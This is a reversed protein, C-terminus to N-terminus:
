AGRRGSAWGPPPKLQATAAAIAAMAAPESALAMPLCALPFVVSLLLYTNVLNSTGGRAGFVLGGVGSGLSWLALLIGALEPSGEEAAFAPVAVEVSGLCFGLPVTALVIARLGPDALIGLAGRHPSDFPRPERMRQPLRAYFLLTGLVVLVASVFIAVEPGALAIALATILPGSVFSVEITVSDLAYAASVLVPDDELLEGFRARLV